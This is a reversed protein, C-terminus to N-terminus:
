QKRCCKTSPLWMKFSGCVCPQGWYNDLFVGSNGARCFDDIKVGNYGAQCFNDAWVGGNGAQYFDDAWVGGNRGEKLKQHFTKIHISWRNHLLYICMCVCVCVYIDWIGLSTMPYIYISWLWKHGQVHVHYYHIRTLKYLLHKMSQKTFIQHKGRYPMDTQGKRVDAVGTMLWKSMLRNLIQVDPLSTIKEVYLASPIPHNSTLRNIKNSKIIFHKQNKQM